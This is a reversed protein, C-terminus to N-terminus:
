FKQNIQERPILGNGSWFYKINVSVPSFPVERTNVEGIRRQLEPKTYSGVDSCASATDGDGVQVKYFSVM